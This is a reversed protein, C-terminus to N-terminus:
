LQEGAADVLQRKIVARQGRVFYPLQSRARRELSSAVVAARSRRVPRASVTAPLGRRDPARERGGEAHPDLGHHPRLGRQRLTREPSERLLSYWDISTAAGNTGQEAETLGGSFFATDRAEISGGFRARLALLARRSTATHHTYRAADALASLENGPAREPVREIGQAEAETVVIRFQGLALRRSWSLAPGRADAPPSNRRAVERRPTATLTTRQPAPAQDVSPQTLNPQVSPQEGAVSSSCGRRRRDPQRCDCRQWRRDGAAAHPPQRDTADRGDVHRRGSGVTGHNRRGVSCRAIWAITTPRGASMSPPAPSAFPTPGPTSPGTRTPVICEDVGFNGEDLQVRGGESTTSVVRARAGAEVDIKRGKRSVLVTGPRDSPNVGDAEAVGNAVQYTVRGLRTHVLYAAPVSASRWARDGM